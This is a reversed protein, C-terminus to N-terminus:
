LIPSFLRAISEKLKQTMSRNNFDKINLEESNNMDELFDKTMVDIVQKIMYLHM